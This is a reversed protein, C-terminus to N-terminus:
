RDSESGAVLEDDSTWPKSGKSKCMSECFKTTAVHYVMVHLNSRICLFSLKTNCLGSAMQTVIEVTPLKAYLEFDVQEIQQLNATRSTCCIRLLDFLHLKLTLRNSDLGLYLFM